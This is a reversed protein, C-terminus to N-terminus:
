TSPKPQLVLSSWTPCSSRLITVPNQHEPVQIITSAFFFLLLATIIALATTPLQLLFLSRWMRASDRYGEWLRLTDSGARGDIRELSKVGEEIKSGAFMRGM